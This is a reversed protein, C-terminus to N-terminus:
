KQKWIVWDSWLTDSKLPKFLLLSRANNGEDKALIMGIQYKIQNKLSDIVVFNFSVSDTKHPPLILTRPLNKLCTQPYWRLDQSKLIYFDRISCTMSLYKLTDSTNNTLLVMTVLRKQYGKTLVNTTKAALLYAPMQRSVASFKLIVVFLLLCIQLIRESKAM